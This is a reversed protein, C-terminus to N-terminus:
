RLTYYKVVRKAGKPKFKGKYKIMGKSSEDLLETTEESLLLYTKTAKNYDELRQAISIGESFHDMQRYGKPGVYTEIVTDYHLGIRTKPIKTCSVIESCAKLAKDADNPHFFAIISDGVYKDIEAGHSVLIRVVEKTYNDLFDNVERASMNATQGSYNEIDSLFIIRNIEQPKFVGWLFRRFSEPFEGAKELVIGIYQELFDVEDKSKEYAKENVDKFFGSKASKEKVWEQVERFRKGILKNLYYDIIGGLAIMLFIMETFFKIDMKAQEIPDIVGHGSGFRIIVYGMLIMTITQMKNRIQNLYRDHDEQRKERKIEHGQKTREVARSSRFFQGMKKLLSFERLNLRAIHTIKTTKEIGGIKTVGKVTRGFRSLIKLARLIRLNAVGPGGYADLILLYELVASLIASIDIFFDLSLIYKKGHVYIKMATDFVFLLNSFIIINLLTESSLGMLIGTPPGFVSFIISFVLLVNYFANDEIRILLEKIQFVLQDV